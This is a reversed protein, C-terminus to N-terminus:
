TRTGDRTLTAELSDSSSSDAEEFLTRYEGVLGAVNEATNM